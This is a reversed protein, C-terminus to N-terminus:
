GDGALEGGVVEAGASPAPEAGGAARAVARRMSQRDVSNRLNQQEASDAHGADREGIALREPLVCPFAVGDHLRGQGRVAVDQDADAIVAADAAERHHMVGASPPDFLAPGRNPELGVEVVKDNVLAMGEAEVAADERADVELVALALPLASAVAVALENQ